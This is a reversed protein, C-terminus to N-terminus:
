AGHARTASHEQSDEGRATAKQRGKLLNKKSARKKSVQVWTSADNVKARLMKFTEILFELFKINYTTPDKAYAADNLTANSLGKAQQLLKSNAEQLMKLEAQTEALMRKLLNANQIDKVNQYNSFAEPNARRDIGSRQENEKSITNSGQRREGETRRDKSNFLEKSFPKQKNGLLMDLPNFVNLAKGVAQYTASASVEGLKEFTNRIVPKKSQAQM